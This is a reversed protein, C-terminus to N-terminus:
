ALTDLLERFFELLCLLRRSVEAFFHLAQGLGVLVENVLVMVKLGLKLSGLFLGRFERGALLLLNSVRSIILSSILLRGLFRVVLGLMVLMVLTVLLVMLVMLVLLAVVLM